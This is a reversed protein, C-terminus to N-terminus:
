KPCIAYLLQSNNLFTTLKDVNYFKALSLLNDHLLRM